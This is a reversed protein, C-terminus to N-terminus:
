NISSYQGLSDGCQCVTRVGRIERERSEKTTTTCLLLILDYWRIAAFDTSFSAWYTYPQISSTTALCHFAVLVQQVTSLVLPPYKVVLCMMSTNTKTAMLRTASCGQREKLLFDLSQPYGTSLLVGLSLFRSGPCRFSLSLEAGVM